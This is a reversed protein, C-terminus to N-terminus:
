PPAVDKVNISVSVDHIFGHVAIVVVRSQLFATGRGLRAAPGVIDLRPEVHAFAGLPKARKAQSPLSGCPLAAIVGGRCSFSSPLDPPVGAHDPRQGPHFLSQCKEAPDAACHDADPQDDQDARDHQHASGCARRSSNVREGGEQIPRELRDPVSPARRPM